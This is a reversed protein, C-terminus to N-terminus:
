SITMVCWFRVISTATRRLTEPRVSTDFHTRKRFAYGRM